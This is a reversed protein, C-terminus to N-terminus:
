CELNPLSENLQRRMSISSIARFYTKLINGQESKLEAQGNENRPFDLGINVECKSYFHTIYHTNACYLDNNSTIVDSLPGM